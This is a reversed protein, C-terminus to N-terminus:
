RARPPGGRPLRDNPVHRVGAAVLGAIAVAVLERWTLREDILAWDLVTLAGLVAAGAAALLYKRYAGPQQLPGPDRPASM